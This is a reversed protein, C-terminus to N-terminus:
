ADIHGTKHTTLFQSLPMVEIGPGFVTGGETCNITKVPGDEWIPVQRAMQLLNERYWAFVPDTVYTRHLHPNYVKYKDLMFKVMSADGSARALLENYYQSEEISADYGLDLGVLAVPSRHLISFTFVWASAGTNGGTVMCPLGVPHRESNTMLRLVNTASARDRYDDIVPIWWYIEMGAENCRNTVEPDVTIGLVARIKSGQKKILPDTYFDAIERGADVSIVYEPVLSERLCSSLIRDSAVLVGRYGSDRIMAIHSQTHISPGAGLVIAPGLSAANSRAEAPVLDLTSQGDLAHPLNRAANRLWLPLFKQYTARAIPNVRDPRAKHHRRGTKSRELARGAATKKRM